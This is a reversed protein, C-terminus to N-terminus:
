DKPTNSKSNKEGPSPVGKFFYDCLCHKNLTLCDCLDINEFIHAMNKKAKQIMQGSLGFTILYIIIKQENKGMLPFYMSIKVIASCITPKLWIKNYKIFFRHLLLLKIIIIFFHRRLCLQIDRIRSFYFSSIQDKAELKLQGMIM